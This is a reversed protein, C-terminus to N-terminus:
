MVESILVKRGEESSKVAACVMALSKINDQCYTLPKEGSDLCDIFERILGAHNEHDIVENVEVIEKTEQRTFGSDSSVTGVEIKNQGDWKLTGNVGVVRWECQWSTNLGSSCWSGRYTYVTGDSMEFICIASADHEYWSGEPNYEHCYVSIPDKGSIYRAQDFSHIAMDVLLVHKMTDRFDSKDDNPSFHAGIYFDSDVVQLHGLKGSELENKVTRISNLYRRNQIVAYTLGSEVAKEVMETAQEMNPALPKEGLIHCGHKLATLVVYHHVNPTTVDFVADPKLEALMADLDTGTKANELCLEEKRKIAADENLDVLGVVEIDDMEGIPGLWANSMGGCGILVVHKM